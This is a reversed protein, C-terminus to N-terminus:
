RSSGKSDGGVCYAQKRKSNLMKHYDCGGDQLIEGLTVARTNTTCIDTM